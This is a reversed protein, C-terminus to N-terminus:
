LDKKDLQMNGKFIILTRPKENLQHNAIKWKLHPDM